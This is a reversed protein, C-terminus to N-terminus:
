VEREGRAVADGHATQRMVGGVAVDGADEFGSALDGDAVLRLFRTGALQGFAFDRLDERGARM